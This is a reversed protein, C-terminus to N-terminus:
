TSHETLVRAAHRHGSAIAASVDDSEMAAIIFGAAFADGAGTTDTIDEVFNAPVAAIVSGGSYARAPQGGAKMVTLEVSPLGNRQEVGLMAGEDENCFVVNPALSSLLEVFVDVGVHEIIATSSTDISIRGGSRHVVRIADIAASALPEVVLSYAPIHLWTVGQLDDPAPVRLDTSAARDPLMSREGGPEVLVVITGTSGQRQVRADVGAACLQAILAAGIADSGVMGIFRSAAGARAASVAVNAASGGQRRTITVDSDSREAIESSLRVVVDEVLDGICCLM